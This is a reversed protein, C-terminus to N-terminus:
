KDPPDLETIVRPALPSLAIWQALVLVLQATRQSPYHVVRQFARARRVLRPWGWRCQLRGRQLTYWLRRANWTWHSCRRRHRVWVIRQNGIRVTAHCGRTRQVGLARGVKGNHTFILRKGRWHTGNACLERRVPHRGEGTPHRRRQVWPCHRRVGERRHERAWTPRGPDM